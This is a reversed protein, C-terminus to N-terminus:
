AKTRFTRCDDCRIYVVVLVVVAYASYGALLRPRQGSYKIRVSKRTRKSMQYPEKSLSFGIALSRGVCSLVASFYASM